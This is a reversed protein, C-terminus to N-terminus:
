DINQSENQGGVLEGLSSIEVYDRRGISWQELRYKPVYHIEDGNMLIVRMCIRDTRRISLDKEYHIVDLIMKTYAINYNDTLIVYLM